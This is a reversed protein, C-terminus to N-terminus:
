EQGSRAVGDLHQTNGWGGAFWGSTRVRYSDFQVGQFQLGGWRDTLFMLGDACGAAVKGLCDAGSAGASM